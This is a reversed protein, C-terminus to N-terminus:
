VAIRPVAYGLLIIVVLGILLIWFFAGFARVATEKDKVETITEVKPEPRQPPTFSALLVALLFSFLLIPLWAIGIFVPGAPSIWLGGAWAALFVVLFFIRINAWPGTRRLGVAFVLTFLMAMCLAFLIDALFM